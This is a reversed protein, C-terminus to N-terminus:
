SNTALWEFPAPPKADPARVYLPMAESIDTEPLHLAMACLTRASPAALTHHVGEINGVTPHHASHITDLAQLTIDGDPTPLTDSHTFRQTYAEQKGANLWVECQVAKPHTNFYEFAVAQLSTCTKLTHPRALLLGHATALSVRIGTFSGPGLTTVLTGVDEMRLGAEDLTAEIMPVLLRAHTGQPLECEVVRQGVQVAVSATPCSSDFALIPPLQM